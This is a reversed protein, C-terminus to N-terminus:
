NYRENKGEKLGLYYGTKMLNFKEWVEGPTRGSIVRNNCDDLIHYYDNWSHLTMTMGHTQAFASESIWQKVMKYTIRSM